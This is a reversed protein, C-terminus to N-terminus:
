NTSSCSSQQLTTFRLKLIRLWPESSGPHDSHWSRSDSKFNGHKLRYVRTQASDPLWSRNIHARPVHLHHDVSRRSRFGWTKLRVQTWIRVQKSRLWCPYRLDHHDSRSSLGVSLCTRFPGTCTYDPHPLGLPVQSNERRIQFRPLHGQSCPRLYRPWPSFFSWWWSSSLLFVSVIFAEITCM